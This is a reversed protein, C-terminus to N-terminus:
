LEMFIFVINIYYNDYLTIGSHISNTILNNKWFSTNLM